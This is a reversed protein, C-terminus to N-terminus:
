MFIDDMSYLGCDNVQSFKECMKIAGCAFLRRDEAIHKITISEHEGMIRIEHEGANTGGRVSHIEINRDTFVGALSKATGSPMDKKNKHHTEIISIDYDGVLDKIANLMEKVMFVGLSTNATKLIPFFKSYEKISQLQSEMHGTACIVLPLNNKKCFELEMEIVNPLSFDLVMDLKHLINEDIDGFSKYIPIVGEGVKDVGAVINVKECSGGIVCRGMKGNAGVLLINM